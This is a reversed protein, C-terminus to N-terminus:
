IEKLIQPNNPHFLLVVGDTALFKDAFNFISAVYDENWKNWM